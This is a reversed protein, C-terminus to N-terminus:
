FKVARGQYQKIETFLINIFFWFLLWIKENTTIVNTNIRMLLQLLFFLVVRTTATVGETVVDAILAIVVVVAVLPPLTVASPPADTVTRPIQQAVDAVGVVEFALVVLPVPIPINVLPKVPRVAPV